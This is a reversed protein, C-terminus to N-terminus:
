TGPCQPATLTRVGVIQCVRIDTDQASHVDSFPVPSPAFSNRGANFNAWSHSGPMIKIM